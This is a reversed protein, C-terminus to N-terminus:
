KRVRKTEIADNYVATMKKAIANWNYNKRIFASGNKLAGDYWKRNKLVNLLREYLEDASGIKFLFDDALDGYAEKLVRESDGTPTTIIPTECAITDLVVLSLGEYYSPLVVADSISYIEPMREAPLLTFIPQVGLSEALRKLDNKIGEDRGAIVLVADPFDKKLKAFARILLDIGKYKDLRGIYSILPGNGHTFEEKLADAKVRKFRSDVGNPITIVKEKPVQSNLLPITAAAVTTVKDTWRFFFPAFLLRYTTHFLWSIGFKFRHYGHFTFVFPKKKLAAAFGAFFSHPTAYGHAHIVDADTAMVAGLLGPSFRISSFLPFHLSWLRTVKVGGIVEKDLKGKEKTTIVLVEHGLEAQALALSYVASEMGGATPEFSHVVQVIRM